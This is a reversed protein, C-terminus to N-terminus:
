DASVAVITIDTVDDNPRALFAFRYGEYTPRAKTLAIAAAVATLAFRRRGHAL